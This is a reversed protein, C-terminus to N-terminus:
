WSVDPSVEQDIHVWGKECQATHFSSMGKVGKGRLGIVRPLSTASKIVFGPSAGPLFVVSKGGVDSVARLPNDRRVQGTQVAEKASATPSCALYSNVVKLFHLGSWGKQNNAPYFPEYITLDDNGARVQSTLSRHNTRRRQPNM